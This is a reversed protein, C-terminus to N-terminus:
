GGSTAERREGAPEDDALRDATAGELMDAVWDCWEAYERESGIGRRLALFCGFQPHNIQYLATGWEQQMRELKAEYISRLAHHSRAHERFLAIAQVPDALWLSYARLTLEDRKAPLGVNRTVWSQLAAYGAETISYVKKAPREQQEVREHTILGAAELRALEPYIQSHQAQWFYGVPAQMQRLLDYGSASERALLGLLAYGLTQIKGDM